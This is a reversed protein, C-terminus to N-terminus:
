LFAAIASQLAPTCLVRETCRQEPSAEVGEVGVGGGAVGEGLVGEVGGGEGGVGKVYPLALGVRVYGLGALFMCWSRRRAWRRDVLISNLDWIKLTRDFSGSVILPSEGGTVSLAWTDRTHSEGTAILVGDRADWAKLQGDSSGAIVVHERGEWAAVSGVYDTHGELTILLSKGEISWIQSTM